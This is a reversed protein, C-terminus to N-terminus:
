INVMLNSVVIYQNPLPLSHLDLDSRGKWSIYKYIIWISKSCGIDDENSYIYIHVVPPCSRSLSSRARVLVAASMLTTTGRSTSCLCQM